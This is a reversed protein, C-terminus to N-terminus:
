IIHLDEDAPCRVDKAGKIDEEDADEEAADELKDAPEKGLVEGRDYDKRDDTGM